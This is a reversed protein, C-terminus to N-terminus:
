PRLKKKWTEIEEETPPSETVHVSVGPNQKDHVTVARISHVHQWGDGPLVGEKQLADEILKMAGALVNSPDRRRNPERLIYTFHGGDPCSFGQQRVFLCILGEWHRKMKAWKGYWLRNDSRKGAVRADIIENLGPLVTPIDLKM